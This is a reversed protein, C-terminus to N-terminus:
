DEEDDEEEDEANNLEFPDQQIGIATETLRVRKGAIFRVHKLCFKAFQPFFTGFFDLESEIYNDLDEYTNIQNIRMEMELFCAKELLHKKINDFNNFRMFVEVTNIYDSLGAVMLVLFAELFLDELRRSINLLLQEPEGASGPVSVTYNKLILLSQGQGSAGLCAKEQTMIVVIEILSRIPIATQASIRKLHEAFDEAMSILKEVFLSGKSRYAAKRYEHYDLPEKGQRLWESYANLELEYTLDALDLEVPFCRFGPNTVPVPCQVLNNFKEGMEEASLANLENLIARALFAAYHNRGTLGRVKNRLEEILESDKKM